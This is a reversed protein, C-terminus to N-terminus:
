PTAEFATTIEWNYEDRRRVLGLGVYGRNLVREDLDAAEVADIFFHWKSCFDYHRDPGGGGVIWIEVWKGSSRIKEIVVTESNWAAPEAQTEEISVVEGM